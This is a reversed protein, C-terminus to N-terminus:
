CHSAITFYVVEVVLVVLDGYCLYREYFKIQPVYRLHNVKKYLSYTNKEFLKYYQILKQM